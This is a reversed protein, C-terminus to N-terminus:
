WLGPNWVSIIPHEFTRRVGWIPPEVSSAWLAIPTSTAFANVFNSKM